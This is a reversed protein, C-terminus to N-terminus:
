NNNRILGRRKIIGVAKILEMFSDPDKVKMKEIARPKVKTFGGDDEMRNVSGCNICIAWDGKAPEGLDEGVHAAKDATYNCAPCEYPKLDYQKKSMSLLQQVTFIAFDKIKWFPKASRLYVWLGVRFGFFM